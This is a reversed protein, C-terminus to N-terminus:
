PVTGNIAVHVVDAVCFGSGAQARAFHIVM